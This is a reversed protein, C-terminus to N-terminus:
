HPVPVFIYVLPKLAAIVVFFVAELAWGKGKQEFYGHLKSVARSIEEQNLIRVTGVCIWEPSSLPKWKSMENVQKGQM